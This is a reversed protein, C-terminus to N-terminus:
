SVAKDTHSFENANKEESTTTKKKQQQQQKKGLLCAIRKGEM